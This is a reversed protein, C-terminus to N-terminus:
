RLRLLCNVLGKGKGKGKWERWAFGRLWYFLRPVFAQRGRYIFWLLVCRAFREWGGLFGYLAQAFGHFHGSVGKLLGDMALLLLGKDNFFFFLFFPFFHPPIRPRIGM